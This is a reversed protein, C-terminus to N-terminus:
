TGAKLNVVAVAAKEEPGSHGLARHPLAAQWCTPLPLQIPRPQHKQLLGKQKFVILEINNKIIKLSLRLAAPSSKQQEALSRFLACLTNTGAAALLCKRLDTYTLGKNPQWALVAGCNNSRALETFCHLFQSNNPANIVLLRELNIEAQIFAQCFPEAPPNLLVILGSSQTRLAPFFLQWEGQFTKQCIEILTGAPWGGQLLEANLAAYGSDICNHPAGRHRHGRWVDQRSLIQDLTSSSSSPSPM